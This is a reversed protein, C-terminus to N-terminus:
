AKFVAEFEQLEMSLPQQLMDFFQQATIKRVQGIWADAKDMKRMGPNEGVVLITTGVPMEAFAKGGNLQVAKIAERRMMGPLRGTFSVVEGAFANNGKAKLRRVADQIPAPDNTTDDERTVPQIEIPEPKVPEPKTPEVNHSIIEDREISKAERKAQLSREAYEALKRHYELKAAQKRETEAERVARAAEREAAKQARLAKNQEAEIRKQEAAAERERMAERERSASMAMRIFPILLLIIGPLYLLYRM